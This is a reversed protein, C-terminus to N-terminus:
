WARIVKRKSRKSRKRVRGGEGDGGGEGGDGGEEIYKCVEVKWLRLEGTGKCAGPNKGGKGVKGVEGRGEKGVKGREVKWKGKEKEWKGGGSAIEHFSIRYYNETRGIWRNREKSVNSM